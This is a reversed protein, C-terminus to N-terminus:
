IDTYNAYMNSINEGKKFGEPFDPLPEYIDNDYDIGSGDM